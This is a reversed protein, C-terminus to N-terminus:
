GADQQREVAAGAQQHGPQEVPFPEHRASLM